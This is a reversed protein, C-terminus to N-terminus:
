RNLHLHLGLDVTFYTLSLAGSNYSSVRVAPVVALRHSVLWDIGVGSDVGVGWDSNMGDVSARNALIGGRVWLLAPGDRNILYKLGGNFGTDDIDTTCGDCNFSQRTMGAYATWRPNFSYMADAAFSIGATQNPLPTTTLEGTPLASGVRGELAWQATAPSVSVVTALLALAVTHVTRKQM